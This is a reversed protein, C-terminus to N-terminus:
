LEGECKEIKYSGARSIWPEEAPTVQQTIMHTLHFKSRRFDAIPRALPRVRRPHYRLISVTTESTREPLRVRRQQRHAAVAPVPRTDTYALRDSVDVELLVTVILRESVTEKNRMM